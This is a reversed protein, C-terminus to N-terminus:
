LTSSTWDNNFSLLFALSFESNNISSVEAFLVERAVLDYLLISSLVPKTTDYSAGGLCRLALFADIVFSVVEVVDLESSLDM